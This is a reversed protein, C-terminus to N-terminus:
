RQMKLQEFLGKWGKQSTSKLAKNIRNKLGDKSLGITLEGNEAVSIGGTEESVIVSLVDAQESIGLGARHRMGLKEGNVQTVQSLPLTCRAAEILNKNVIVAGDHLPSRPYFISTLLASSLKANLIEGTEAYGRIGSSKILIILAGHQHRALEFAANAIIDTSIHSESKGFVKFVPNSAIIVLLRRIEPQFLVVFAIVWIDTILRLLWSVARLNLSQSIFSFFLIILLGIFIQAAITGRLITYLKYFIFSVIAVDIVDSLTVTLFGIKFLDVM